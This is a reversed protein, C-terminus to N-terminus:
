PLGDLLAMGREQYLRYPAETPLMPLSPLHAHFIQSTPYHRGVTAPRVVVSRLGSDHTKVPRM